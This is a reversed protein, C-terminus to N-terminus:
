KPRPGFVREAQALWLDLIVEGALRSTSLSFRQERKLRTFIPVNGCGVGGGLGERECRRASIACSLQRAQSRTPLGIVAASMARPATM